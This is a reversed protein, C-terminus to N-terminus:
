GGSVGLMSWWEISGGEVVKIAKFPCVKECVGCGNCLARVIEVKGDSRRTIAPCNFAKYCLMCGRCADLDVMYVPRRVGMFRAKGLAVLICPGRAVLVSVDGRRADELAKLAKEEVDRPDFAKAVYVRAGAASALDEIPIRRAERGLADFGSGPHPQHGTMATVGNDLVLVMMPAKNYVANVLGPIGAHYFTSDGITAVVLTDRLTHSIGNALGISGGMEVLTDQANFPKNIALSYCGIDGSYVVNLGLRKVARRVAYFVSRYPCGPCLVPPRPPPELPARLVEPESYNVGLISALPKILDDLRLEGYSRLYGSGRGYVKVNLGNDQLISKLLTEFVPDGEEVVVIAKRGEVESLLLGKPPPIVTTVKLLRVRELVGLKSLAERAYRYGIGVGVVLVEANDSGEVTNLPSRSFEEEIRAWRELLEVRLRRANAPILSWRAPNRNFYGKLKPRVLDGVTVPARTHAVRTTLRLLVPHKFRESVRLAELTAGRAEQAGAPEVVPIYAHIGYWRNDQENQSSWMWPDDASVALFAAEVGTYASSFLPDAAVNLGVHKMTVVSPVGTIAAGYAVEFAVKENVSWEVYPYGLKSAAYALAELIESSPTGPYGAAVGVGYELCARAVAVDGLMLVRSGPEALVEPYSVPAGM